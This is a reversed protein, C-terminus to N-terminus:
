EDEEVIQYWDKYKQIIKIDDGYEDKFRSILEEKAKELNTFWEIDYDEYRWEWSDKYTTCGFSHIIFSDSGLFAVNDVLIGNEYICYVKTGIEPKMNNKGMYLKYLDDAFQECSILNPNQYRGKLQPALAFIEKRSTAFDINYKDRLHNQVKLCVFWPNMTIDNM